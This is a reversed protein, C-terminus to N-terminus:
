KSTIDHTFPWRKSMQEDSLNDVVREQLGDKSGFKDGSGMIKPSKPFFVQLRDSIETGNSEVRSTWGHSKQLKTEL